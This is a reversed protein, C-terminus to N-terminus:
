LMIIAPNSCFECLLEIELAGPMPSRGTTPASNRELANWRSSVSSTMTMVGYRTFGTLAFSM